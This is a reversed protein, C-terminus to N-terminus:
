IFIQFVKQSIERSFLLLGELRNIAESTDKQSLKHAYHILFKEITYKKEEGSKSQVYIYGDKLYINNKISIGNFYFSSILGYSHERIKLLINKLKNSSM